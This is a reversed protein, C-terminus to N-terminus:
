FVGPTNPQVTPSISGSSFVFLIETNGFGLLPNNLRISSLGSSGQEGAVSSRFFNKGDKMFVYAIDKGSSAAFDHIRKLNDGPYIEDVLFVLGKDGVFIYNSTIGSIIERSKSVISPNSCELRTLLYDMMNKRIIKPKM